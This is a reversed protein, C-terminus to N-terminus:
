SPAQPIWEACRRRGACIVRSAKCCGLDQVGGFEAVVKCGGGGALLLLFGDGFSEPLVSDVRKISRDPARNVGRSRHDVRLLVRDVLRINGAGSV